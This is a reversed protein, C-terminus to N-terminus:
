DNSLDSNVMGVMDHCIEEFEQESLEFHNLVCTTEKKGM